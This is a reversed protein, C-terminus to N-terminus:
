DDKTGCVKKSEAVLPGFKAYNTKVGDDLDITIPDNTYSRLQEDYALLEVMQKKSKDLETQLKKRTASSSTQTVEEELRTIRAALKGQLPIAYETRIRALTGPTYRHLYVLCQFANQKGSSFLWYIPRNKYTQLHDKYFDTLFYDRLERGLSQEIFRLNEGLTADGFTARLFVKTRAVLDDEFWEGDLMPIIGDADPEFSVGEDRLMWDKGYVAALDGKEGLFKMYDAVTDGANALILGEADLSYRGMMCGVAYSLFAAMDKKADARALTIQADAVEPQLEGDLGYAAIFLRNNETELEQMRFIATTSQSEWNRWSAELTAGKLGPRLLPQDRFDWSTEFNDWDVCALSVCEHVLKKISDSESSKIFPLKGFPGEHFDLTPSFVKLFSEVLCSNSFGLLYILEDKNEAFCMAGKTESIAGTPSFRMSFRNSITSWTIGERFYFDMNKVTRTPSGYLKAAYGLMERGDDEWNVVYENNGYWKRVPGGKALPFWKLGSQKAQTRTFMALGITQFGVESWYRLFRGNDSTALGQRPKAVDRILCGGAFADRAKESLWYAVPTGEVRRLDDIAIHYKHPSNRVYHDKETESQGKTADIYTARYSPDSTNRITFCATQVVEGGISDFARAGLQALNIFASSNFFKTRFSVFSSLFLWGQMTVMGIYGGELALTCNRDIFGTYLDHKAEPYKDEMFCKLPGDMGRLGMYPPNAVAIHYRQTLAEAQELVRLVKIHTTGVMLDASNQIKSKLNQIQHRVAHIEAESLYPQILSGFNKAAMFQSFLKSYVQKALDGLALENFFSLIERSKVLARFAAAGLERIEPSPLEDLDKGAKLSKLLRAQFKPNLEFSDLHRLLTGNAALIGVLSRAIERADFHNQREFLGGEQIWERAQGDFFPDLGIADMYDSLENEAFRVDCLELISPRVAKAESFFRRSKERAKLVLTLEALQSARPCIELGFLNHKLILGPIDDAAYGEEEYILCLLDFAYALIHGSGCAPDVLKIDEPKTIKLFDTEEEGEIYYPMHERLRSNPRNLLWLRGLSNEVLYRVIWHPTFLQTVAPIDATPVASKRAMVADKKESIYFQYLWGLVEVREWDAPDSGNVLQRIVSDSHLLNDPLLLITVDDLKSFVSPMIHNLQNCQALLLLRYLEEDRNGDLKLRIVEDRDLGKLEVHEAHQLIEPLSNGEPHSLVRYGHDLYGAHLEMFRLAVLRDFWTYAMSEMTQDFGSAEILSVLKKRLPVISRPFPQGGILAVDGSETVTEVRDAHIGLVGARRTVAQIFANRAAPAYTKLQTLNMKLFDSPM